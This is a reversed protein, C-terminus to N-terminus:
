LLEKALLYSSDFFGSPFNPNLKGNEEIRHITLETRTRERGFYFINVDEPKTSFLKQKIIVQLKRIIHESHTEIIYQNNDGISLLTEIFKAQLKPHLHVEPQEIILTKGGNQESLLAEFIIPLQLSVGYGVDFINSYLNKIKIKLESVPLNKSNRVDVGDALGFNVILENFNKLFSPSVKNGNILSIFKEIDNKKYFSKTDRMLYIRKPETFLPNVFEMNNIKKEIYNQTILLYAIEYYLDEDNKDLAKQNLDYGEVISLFAKKEYGIKKFEISENRIKSEYRITLTPSLNSSLSDKYKLYDEEIILEVKGLKSNEIITEITKHKDLENTISFQITTEYSDIDKFIRDKIQNEAEIEKQLDEDVEVEELLSENFFMIQKYFDYYDRGVKFGFKLKRDEKHFYIMDYYNGVDAYEGSLLLNSDKNNEISQKLVLLFKLLSSKGSSNEGILINVRSFDFRLNRFSRYNNITLSYNM